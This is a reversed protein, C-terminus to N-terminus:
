SGGMFSECSRRFNKAVTCCETPNEVGAFLREAREHFYPPFPQPVFGKGGFPAIILKPNSHRPAHRKM